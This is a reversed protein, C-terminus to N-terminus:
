TEFWVDGGNCVEACGERLVVCLSHRTRCTSSVWCVALLHVGQEGTLAVQVDLQATDLLLGRCQVRAVKTPELLFEELNQYM